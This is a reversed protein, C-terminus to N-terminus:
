MVYFEEPGQTVNYLSYARVWNRKIEPHASPSALFNMAKALNAKSFKAVTLAAHIDSCARHKANVTEAGCEETM